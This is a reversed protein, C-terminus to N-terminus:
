SFAGFLAPGLVRFGFLFGVAAYVVVIAAIFAVAERESM